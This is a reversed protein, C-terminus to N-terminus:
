SDVREAKRGRPGTREHQQKSDFFERTLKELRDQAERQRKLAEDLQSLTEQEVVSSTLWFEIAERVLAGVPEARILSMAQLTADVEEPIRTSITTSKSM